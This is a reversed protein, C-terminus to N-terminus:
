LAAALPQDALLTSSRDAAFYLPGISTEALVQGASICSPVADSQITVTDGSPIIVRMGTKLDTNRVLSTNSASM